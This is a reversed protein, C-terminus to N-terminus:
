KEEPYTKDVHSMFATIFDTMRRWRSRFDLRPPEQKPLFIRGGLPQDQEVIGMATEYDRRALRMMDYIQKPIVDFTKGTEEHHLETHMITALRVAEYMRESVDIMILAVRRDAEDVLSHEEGPHPIMNKHTHLLKM